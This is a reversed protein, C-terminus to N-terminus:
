ILPNNTVNQEICYLVSERMEEIDTESLSPCINTDDGGGEGDSDSGSNNDNLFDWISENDEIDNKQINSNKNIFENLPVGNILIDDTQISVDPM